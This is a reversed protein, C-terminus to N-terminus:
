RWNDSVAEQALLEGSKTSTASNSVLLRDFPERFCMRLERDQWTAERVVRRLMRRQERARHGEFLEAAKSIASILEVAQAAPASEASQCELMKRRIRQQDGRIEEAKKDYTSADIRGDLRDEYLVDLRSQLRNLEGEHRRVMQARAQRETM